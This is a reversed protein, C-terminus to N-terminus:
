RMNSIFSAYAVAALRVFANSDDLAMCMSRLLGSAEGRLDCVAMTLKLAALATCRVAAVDDSLVGVQLEAALPALRPYRKGIVACAQLASCRVCDFEDELLDV